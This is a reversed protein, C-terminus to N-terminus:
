ETPNWIHLSKRKKGLGILHTFGPPIEISSSRWNKRADSKSKFVGLIVLLDLMTKKHGPWLIHVIENDPFLNTRDTDKINGNCVIINLFEM